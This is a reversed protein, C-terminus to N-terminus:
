PNVGNKESYTGSIPESDPTGILEYEGKFYESELNITMFVPGEKDKSIKEDTISVIGIKVEKWIKKDKSIFMKNDEIKYYYKRETKLIEFYPDKRTSDYVYIVNGEIFLLKSNKLIDTKSNKIVRESIAVLAVGEMKDPDIYLAKGEQIAVGYIFEINKEQKAGCDIGDSEIGNAYIIITFSIILLTILLNKVM